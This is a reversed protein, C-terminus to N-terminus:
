VGVPLQHRSCLVLLRDIDLTTELVQSFRQWIDNLLGSERATVLGPHREPLTIDTQVPAYGLV